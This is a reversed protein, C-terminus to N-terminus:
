WLTFKFFVLVTSVGSVANLRTDILRVCHVKVSSLEKKKSLKRDKPAVTWACELSPHGRVYHCGKARM